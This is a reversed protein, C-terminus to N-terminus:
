FNRKHKITKNYITICKKAVKNWSIKNYENMVNESLTNRLAQSNAVALIEDALKQKDWFDYKLASWIIESVGSQNTLILVDGHHAAELATLGFPESISSMVFIDALSYIDRLRKGRIFGTFIVNKAIGLDASMEILQNREEGDGAFIFILKPNKSIALAAARMMNPLGKQITFRGVTSVITHGDQKLSEIYRYTKDDFHYDSKHYNEDLSNYVVDIKSLPIRYKDHIIRKTAESVAIIRDAMMLGEYEIEHILPNGVQMGARDFETAHVHAILPIDHNKKANVGAEYTLWDHAHVIDPQHKKLYKEVYECYEAQVERISTMKKNDFTPIIEELIDMSAYSGGGYRYIPDLNTASLVKMFDIDPHKARYPVVFEINVGQNALAKAMNFCAVGLGGSNHPPLEWGLMLIKMM